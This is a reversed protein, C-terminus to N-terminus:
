SKAMSVTSDAMARIIRKGRRKTAKVQMDALHRLYIAKQAKNKRLKKIRRQHKVWFLRVTKIM